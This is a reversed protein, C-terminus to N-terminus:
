REQGKTRHKKCHPKARETPPPPFEMGCDEMTLRLQDREAKSLSGDKVAADIEGAIKLLESKQGDSLSFGVMIKTIDFIESDFKQYNSM